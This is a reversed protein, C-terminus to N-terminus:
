YDLYMSAIVSVDEPHIIYLIYKYVICNNQGTSNDTLQQILYSIM